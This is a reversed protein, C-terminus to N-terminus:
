VVNKTELSPLFCKISVVFVVDRRPFSLTFSVFLSFYFSFPYHRLSLTHMYTQMNYLLIHLYSAFLSFLKFLVVIVSEQYM